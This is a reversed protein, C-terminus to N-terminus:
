SMVGTKKFIRSIIERADAGLFIFEDVGTKKHAEVQDKPYGALVVLTDPNKEKLGKVLPPVLEPYTGDSSCIVVVAAKSEVAAAVAAGPTDFGQPYIVDFGGIEFFGKAFDARGKYQRVPGMTALFLSPKSGTRAEFALAADRLEEIIETLRHLALPKVTISPKPKPAAAIEGLTAGAVLAHAASELTGNGGAIKALADAKKRKNEAPLNDRYTKLERVQTEYIAAPDPMRTPPLEEKVDAFANTGVMVSKRKCIDKQRKKATEAIEKQPFEQQLASYMGGKKEIELFLALTKEAIEHTLKEVFYSGGAPDAVQDLHSEEKLMIQVNRAMRRSFDDAQGYTEDFPNTQLSNVGGVIASFAETTTRLMNVYPDYKTQNYYSTAAHITMKRSEENGGYAEIIKAWLLRAARLKAIEMFYFPGVAFSFRMSAAIDDIAIGRAQLRDIYEVATALAYATELTASAGANHYPIGSIGITKLAPANKRTWEVTVAMNDYAMDPSVPLEGELALFGLPDTDISGSLKIPDLGRRGTLAILASLLGKGSFGAELHIPVTELDIDALATELHELRSISVGDKGVDATTAEPSDADLGMKCAKDPVLYVATQGNKLDKKLAENFEGPTRVNIKQCIDWPRNLYGAASTGRVFDNFGPKEKLHPLDAIDEKCYIPQLDLGEYTRTVLAKEFPVGKLHLEAAAKWEEYSPPSFGGGPELEKELTIEEPKQSNNSM